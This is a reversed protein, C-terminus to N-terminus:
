ETVPVDTELTKKRDSYKITVPLGGTVQQSINNDYGVGYLYYDGQRLGEFKYKANADAITHADYQSVNAGPFDTAGYKIYVVTNPIPVIHHKVTGEITAKGGTGNKKCSFSVTAIVIILLTTKIRKM